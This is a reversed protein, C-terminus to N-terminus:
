TTFTLIVWAFLPRCFFGAIVSPKCSLQGAGEHMLARKSIIMENKFSVGECSVVFVLLVVVLLLLWVVVLVM